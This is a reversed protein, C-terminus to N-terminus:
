PERTDTEKGQGRQLDTYSVVSDALMDMWQTSDRVAFTLRSQFYQQAEAYTRYQQGATLKSRVQLVTVRGSGNEKVASVLSSAGEQAAFVRQTTSEVASADKNPLRGPPYDTVRIFADFCVIMTSTTYSPSTTTSKVTNATPHITPRMTPYQNNYEWSSSDESGYSSSDGDESSKSSTCGKGQNGKNAKKNKNTDDSTDEDSTDSGDFSSDSDDNYRNGLYSRHVSHQTPPTYIPTKNQDQAEVIFIM